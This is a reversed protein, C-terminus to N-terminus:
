SQPKKSRRRRWSAYALGGGVSLMLAWAGPEPTVYAENFELRFGSWSNPTNPLIFALKYTAGPDVWATFAFLGSTIGSPTGTISIPKVISNTSTLLYFQNGAVSDDAWVQGSMVLLWQTWGSPLQSADPITFDMLAIYSTGSVLELHGGTQRASTPSIWVSSATNAAWTGNNLPQKGATFVYAGLNNASNSLDSLQSGIYFTWNGDAAADTTLLTGSSSFGTSYAGYTPNTLPITIGWGATALMVLGAAIGAVRRVM